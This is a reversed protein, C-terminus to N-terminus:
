IIFAQVHVKKKDFYLMRKMAVSLWIQVKYQVISEMQAQHEVAIACIVYVTRIHGLM